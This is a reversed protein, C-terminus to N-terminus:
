GSGSPGTIFWARGGWGRSLVKRVQAVAKRQGIVQELATPRYQEHLATM